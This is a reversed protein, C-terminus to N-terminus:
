RPGAGDLLPARPHLDAVDWRVDVLDWDLGAPATDRGADPELLALAQALHRWKAEVPLEGPEGLNPSRGFHITRRGELRLLTGPEDVSAFRARRADIVSRGLRALDRPGLATWMSVAVALGDVAAPETLVAGPVLRRVPHGDDGRALEIVPLFGADRAPPAPWRGSLVTGDAAVGLFHRVVHVCAVPERLRLDVRLGDPWLVTAEGVSAVFSLGALGECLAEIAARDDAAVDSQEALLGALEDEWRPDVWGPGTELRALDSRISAFGAAQLESRLGQLWALAAVLALAILALRALALAGRRPRRAGSGSATRSPLLPDGPPM